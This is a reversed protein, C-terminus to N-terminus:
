ALILVSGVPSPKPPDDCKCGRESLPITGNKEGVEPAGGADMGVARDIGRYPLRPNVM